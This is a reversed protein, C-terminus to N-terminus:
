RKDSVEFSLYSLAALTPSTPTYGSLRKARGGQATNLKALCRYICDRLV